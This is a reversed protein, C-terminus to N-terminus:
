LVCKQCVRQQFTQLLPEISFYIVLLHNILCRFCVKVRFDMVLFNIMVTANIHAQFTQVRQMQM